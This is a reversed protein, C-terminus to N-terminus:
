YYQADFILMAQDISNPPDYTLLINKLVREPQFFLM